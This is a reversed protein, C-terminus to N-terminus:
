RRLDGSKKNFKLGFVCYAGGGLFFILTMCFPNVCSAFYQSISCSIHKFLSFVPELNTRVRLFPNFVPAKFIRIFVSNM